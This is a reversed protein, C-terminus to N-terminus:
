SLKAPVLHYVFNVNRKFVPAILLANMFLHALVKDTKICLLEIGFKQDYILEVEEKDKGKYANKGDECAKKNMGDMLPKWTFALMMLPCLPFLTKDLGPLSHKCTGAHIQVLLGLVVWQLWALDFNQHTGLLFDTCAPFELQLPHVYVLVGKYCGNLNVFLQTADDAFANTGVCVSTYVKYTEGKKVAANNICIQHFFCKLKELNPGMLDAAKPKSDENSENTAENVLGEEADDEDENDDDSAESPPPTHQIVGTVMVEPNSGQEDSPNQPTNRSKKKKKPSSLVPDKKAINHCITSSPFYDGIKSQEQHKCILKTMLQKVNPQLLM